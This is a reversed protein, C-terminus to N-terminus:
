SMVTVAESPMTCRRSPSAAGAPPKKVGHPVQLYGILKQGEFPLEVIELPPDFYRAAKLFLEQSRRYAALKGPSNPAPYRAVHNYDYAILYEKKATQTDGATEAKVAREQHPVALSSFARAWEERDVSRLENIVPAVEDYITYLFPNRNERARELLENKVEDMPRPAFSDTM